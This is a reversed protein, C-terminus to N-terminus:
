KVNVLIFQHLYVIFSCNYVLVINAIIAINHLQSFGSSYRDSVLKFLFANVYSVYRGSVLRVHKPPQWQNDTTPPTLVWGRHLVWTQPPHTGMGRPVWKCTSRPVGWTSVGQTSVGKLVWRGSYGIVLLSRTGSIGGSWGVGQVSHSVSAESFMLVKTDKSLAECYSIM